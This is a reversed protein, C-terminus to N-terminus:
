VVNRCSAVHWLSEVNGLSSFVQVVVDRTGLPSGDESLVQLGLTSIGDEFEVNFVQCSVHALSKRVGGTPVGAVAHPRALSQAEESSVGSPHVEGGVGKGEVVDNRSQLALERAVEVSPSVLPLRGRVVPEMLARIFLADEAKRVGHGAPQLEAVSGM